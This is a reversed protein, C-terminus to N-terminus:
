SSLLASSLAPVTARPEGVDDRRAEGGGRGLCLEVREAREPGFMGVAQHLGMDGLLGVLDGPDLREVRLRAVVEVGVLRVPQQTRVAEIAVGDVQLRALDVAQRLDARGSTWQGVELVKMPEPRKSMPNRARRRTPSAVSVPPPDEKEISRVM